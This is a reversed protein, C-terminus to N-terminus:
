ECLPLGMKKFRALAAPYTVLCALCGGEVLRWGDRQCNHAAIEALLKAEEDSVTDSLQEQTQKEAQQGGCAKLGRTLGDVLKRAGIRFLTMKEHMGARVLYGRRLLWKMAARVHHESLGCWDSMFRHALVTPAWPTRLWKCALLEQVGSYLTRVAKSADDPLKTAKIDAPALVGAKVLMRLTWTTLSPKPMKEVPKGTRRAYFVSALPWVSREEEGCHFCAYNYAPYGERPAIIAASPHEDPPHLLCSFKAERTAGAFEPLALVREIVASNGLLLQIQEPTCSERRLPLEGAGCRALLLVGGEQSTKSTHNPTKNEQEKVPNCVRRETGTPSLSTATAPKRSPQLRERLWEPLPALEVDGLEHCVEWWYTNGSQHRSPPAIVCGGGAKVDIGRGLVHTGSRVKDGPHQFLLAQGGGGSLWQLTEPLEGCQAQLKTLTDDGGHRPDIDLVVIGSVTGTAIAVNSDPHRTWWTEIQQPNLTADHVGHTTRPHKGPDTCNPKSCTCHLAPDVSHFPLVSFGARAYTLAAELLLNPNTM